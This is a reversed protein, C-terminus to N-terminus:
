EIAADAEAEKFSYYQKPKEPWPLLFNGDVRWRGDELVLYLPYYMEEARGRAAFFEGFMKRLKADDAGAAAAQEVARCTFAFEAYERSEAAITPLTVAITVKATEGKIEEAAQRFEAQDALAEALALRVREFHSVNSLVISERLDARGFGVEAAKAFEEEGLTYRLRQSLLEFAQPYHNEWLLRVLCEGVEAPPSKDKIKPAHSCGPALYMAALVLLMATMWRLRM